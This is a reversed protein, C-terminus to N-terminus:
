GLILCINQSICSKTRASTQQKVIARLDYRVPVGEKGQPRYPTNSQNQNQSPQMDIYNIEFYHLFTQL